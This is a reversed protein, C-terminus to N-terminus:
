CLSDLDIEIAEGTLILAIKFLHLVRQQGGWIRNYVNYITHTLKILYAPM